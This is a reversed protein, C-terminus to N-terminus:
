KRVDYRIIKNVCDFLSDDQALFFTSLTAIDSLSSDDGERGQVSGGGFEEDDTLVEEALGPIEEVVIGERVVVEEARGPQGRSTQGTM